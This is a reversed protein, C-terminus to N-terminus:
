RLGPDRLWTLFSSSAATSPSVTSTGVDRQRREFGRVSVEGAVRGSAVIRFAVELKGRLGPQGQLSREYCGGIQLLRSRIVTHIATSDSRRPRGGGRKVTRVRGIVM